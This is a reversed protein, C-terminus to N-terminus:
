NLMTNPLILAIQPFAVLIVLCIVMAVWLWLIGVYIDRVSVDLAVGLKPGLPATTAPTAIAADVERISEVVM